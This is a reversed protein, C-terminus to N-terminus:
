PDSLVWFKTFMHGMCIDKLSSGHRNQAAGTPTHPCTPAPPRLPGDTAPTATPPQQTGALHVHRHVCSCLTIQVHMARDPCTHATGLSVLFHTSDGGMGPGRSQGQSQPPLFGSARHDGAVLPCCIAPCPGEQPPEAWLRWIKLGRCRLRHARLRTASAM